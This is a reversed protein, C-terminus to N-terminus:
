IRRHLKLSLPQPKKPETVETGAVDNFYSDAFKGCVVIHLLTTTSLWCGPSHIGRHHDHHQASAVGGALPAAPVGVDSHM